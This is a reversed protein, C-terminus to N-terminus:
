MMEIKKLTKRVIEADRRLSFKRAFFKNSAMAQVYDRSLLTEVHSRNNIRIEFTPSGRTMASSFPSNLLITQFFSEDPIGFHRFYRIIPKNKKVMNLVYEVSERHLLWWQPGKYIDWLPKRKIGCVALLHALKRANKFGLLDTWWFHVARTLFRPRGEIKHYGIHNQVGSSLKERLQKQSVLPLHQGSLLIFYEASSDQFAAKMLDLTARIMNFGGWRINYHRSLTTVGPIRANKALLKKAKADIHLYIASEADSLSQALCKLVEPERHALILYAIKM